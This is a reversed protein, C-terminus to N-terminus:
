DRAKSHAEEIMGETIADPLVLGEPLSLDLDPEPPSIQAEVGSGVDFRVVAHGELRAVQEVVDSAATVTFSWWPTADEEIGMAIVEDVAQASPRYRQNQEDYEFTPYVTLTHPEPEVIELGSPYSQNAVVQRYVTYRGPGLGTLRLLVSQPEHDLNTLITTWESRGEADAGEFALALIDTGAGTAEVSDGLDMYATGAGRRWITTGARTRGVSDAYLKFALASPRVVFTKLYRSWSLEGEGPLPPREVTSCHFLGVNEDHGAFFHAHELWGQTHMWTFGASVFPAGEAGKCWNTSLEGAEHPLLLNWESLHTPPSVGYRALFGELVDQYTLLDRCFTTARLKFPSTTEGLVSRVLSVTPNTALWYWHLSIFDVTDLRLSTLIELMWSTSTQGSLAQAMELLGERRFGCGGVPVTHWSSSDPSNALSRVGDHICVYLQNFDWGFDRATYATRSPGRYFGGDPENWVEIYAPPNGQACEDALHQLIQAAAEGYRSKEPAYIGSFRDAVYTPGPRSEGVRFYVEIGADVMARYADLAGAEQFRFHDPIVLPVAPHWYLWTADLDEQALVDHGFDFYNDRLHELLAQERLGDGWMLQERYDTESADYFDLWGGHLDAQAFHAQGTPLDTGDAYQYDLLAVGHDSPRTGDVVDSRVLNAVDFCDGHTRVSSVGFAAYLPLYDAKFPEKFSEGYRGNNHPSRNVGCLDKLVGLSVSFDVDVRYDALVNVLSGERGADEAKGGPEDPPPLGGGGDASQQPNAESSSVGGDTWDPDGM